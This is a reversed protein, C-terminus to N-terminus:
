FSRGLNACITIGPIAAFGFIIILIVLLFALLGLVVGIWGLIIGARAYGDGTLRETRHIEARAVYGLVLGILSGVTPLVTLGLISAILSGVALVSVEQDATEEPAPHPQQYSRQNM